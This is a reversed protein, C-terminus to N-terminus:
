AARRELIGRLTAATRTLESRLEELAPGSDPLNGGRALIELRLAVDAAPSAGLTLLLGKVTHASRALTPSDGGRLAEAMERERQPHDRLFAEVISRILDADNELNAELRAIDVIPV